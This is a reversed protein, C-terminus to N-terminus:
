GSEWITKCQTLFILFYKLGKTICLNLLFVFPLDTTCHHYWFYAFFFTCVVNLFRASRRIYLINVDQIALKKLKGESLLLNFYKLFYQVAQFNCTYPIKRSQIKGCKSQIRLSVRYVRYREINVGFVPFYSSSFNHMRVSERLTVCRLITVWVNM